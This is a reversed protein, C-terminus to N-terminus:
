RWFKSIVNYEPKRGGITSDNNAQFDEMLQWRLFHLTM